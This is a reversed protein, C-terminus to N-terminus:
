RHKANHQAVPRDSYGRRCRACPSKWSSADRRSAPHVRPSQVLRLLRYNGRQLAPCLRGCQLRVARQVPSKGGSSTGYHAISQPGCSAKQPARGFSPRNTTHAATRPAITTTILAATCPRGPKARCQPLCTPHSKQRKSSRGPSGLALAWLGVTRRPPAEQLQILQLAKRTPKQHHDTRRFDRQASGAQQAGVRSLVRRHPARPQVQGLRM